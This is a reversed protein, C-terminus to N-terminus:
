SRHAEACHQGTGGFRLFLFKGGVSTRDTKRKLNDVVHEIEGRGFFHKALGDGAIQAFAFGREGDNVREIVAGRALPLCNLADEVIAAKLVYAALLNAFNQAAVTGDFVGHGGGIAIGFLRALCKSGKRVRVELARQKPNGVKTTARSM